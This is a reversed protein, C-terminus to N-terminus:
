KKYIDGRPGVRVVEVIVRGTDVLYLARYGRVRLRRSDQGRLAKTGERFPSRRLSEIGCMVQKYLERDGKRLKKLDKQATSTLLIEFAEGSM